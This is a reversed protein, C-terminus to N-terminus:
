PLDTEPPGEPLNIETAFPHDDEKMEGLSEAEKSTALDPLVGPAPPVSSPTGETRVITESNKSRKHQSVYREWRNHNLCTFDEERDAILELYRALKRLERDTKRNVHADRYSHIRLGSQPNMIFNRRIDDFMITNHPGWQPHNDWIVALPKVEKVGYHPFHVSIMDSSDLLLCVRFPPQTEPVVNRNASSHADGVEEVPHHDSSQDRLIASADTPIVGLQGLKALIWTMSTASWIAIDYHVYARKLFEYLYPRALLRASEAPTMHDFITYDVDLVLLRKGPRPDCLRRPHYAKIRRKVKDLNAPLLGIHVEEKFDFDDFIEPAEATSPPESVNLIAEETSGILMLKTNSKIALRSLPLSDTIPENGATRLGLIKQTEPLVRTRHFLANKLDAVTNDPNLTDVLIHTGSFRINLSLTTSGSSM